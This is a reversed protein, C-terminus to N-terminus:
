TKPRNIHKPRNFLGNALYLTLMSSNEKFIERFSVAANNISQVLLQPFCTSAKSSVFRDPQGLINIFGDFTNLVAKFFDM